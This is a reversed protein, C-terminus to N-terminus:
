GSMIGYGSRSHRGVVQILDDIEGLPAAEDVRRRLDVAAKTRTVVVSGEAGQHQAVHTFGPNPVHNLLPVVDHQDVRRDETRGLDELRASVEGIEAVGEDVTALALLTEALIMQLVLVHAWTAASGPREGFCPREVQHELSIGARDFTGTRLDIQAGLRRLAHEDVEGIDQLRTALLRRESDRLYALRETVLDCWAVEDEPGALELLHLQLEEHRRLITRAPVVIPATSTKLPVDIQTDRDVHKAKSSVIGVFETVVRGARGIDLEHIRPTPAFEFADSLSGVEIESLM